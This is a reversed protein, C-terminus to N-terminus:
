AEELELLRRLSTRGINRQKALKKAEDAKRGATVPRGHPRGEKRAQAIGAKVRDRLIDREFGAFAARRL